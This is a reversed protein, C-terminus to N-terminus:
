RMTLAKIEPIVDIVAGYSRLDKLIADTVPTKLLVNIGIMGKSADAAYSSTAPNVQEEGVKECSILLSVAPTLVLLSLLKKLETVKKVKRLVPTTQYNKKM